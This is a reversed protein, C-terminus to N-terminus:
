SKQFIEPATIQFKALMRYDFFIYWADQLFHSQDDWIMYADTGRLPPMKWFLATVCTKWSAFCAAIEWFLAAFITLIFIWRNDIQSFVM